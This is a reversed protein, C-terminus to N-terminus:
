KFPPRRAPAAISSAAGPPALFGSDVSQIRDDRVTISVQHRPNDSVGDLLTGAHVVVDKACCPSAAIFAGASLAPWSFGSSRCLRQTKMLM